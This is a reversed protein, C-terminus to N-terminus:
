ILCLEKLQTQVLTSSIEKFSNCLNTGIFYLKNLSKCHQLGHTLLKVDSTSLEGYLYLEKLICCCQFLENLISASRISSFNGVLAIFEINSCNKLGKLVSAASDSSLVDSSSQVQMLYALWNLLSCTIDQSM